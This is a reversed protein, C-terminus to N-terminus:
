CREQAAGYGTGIAKLDVADEVVNRITRYLYGVFMAEVVGVTAIYHNGGGDGVVILYVRNSRNAVIGEITAAAKGGDDERLTNSRNTAIGKIIAAAKSIYM